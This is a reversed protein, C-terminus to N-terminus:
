GEGKSLLIKRVVSVLTDMDQTKTFYSPSIRIAGTELTGMMQHAAPSCHLGARVAIGHRNLKRAATESDIGRCNFSLIPVFYAPEPMPTYLMVGETRNLERYLRQILLFEHRAIESVRNKSVFEMGSRLGVLGSLNPTGSELKDPLEEPQRFSLSNSGTGGEILTDPLRDTNIILMGTGMPGYLGKHGAVCLYDIKSQQLDIPIVGASQAADVAFLLGYEHALASLREVPLRIGWVNSAHICIIMKTKENIASRFSAITQDDDGPFVRAASFTIGKASCKELPRMVANHEMGSVVVHDGSKLCGKMVLNLAVTCNLTFIVDEESRAHFFEAATQRTRFIEESARLSLKHGSRGPNAGFAFSANISNRVTLPKPFTTASNDLYIM